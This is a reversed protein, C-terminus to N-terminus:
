QNELLNDLQTIKFANVPKVRLSGMTRRGASRHVGSTRRWGQTVVSGTYPSLYHSLTDM